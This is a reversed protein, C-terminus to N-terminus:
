FIKVYGQKFYLFTEELGRTFSHWYKQFMIVFNQRRLTTPNKKLKEQTMDFPSFVQDSACSTFLLELFILNSSHANYVDKSVRELYFFIIQLFRDRSLLCSKWNRSKNAQLKM